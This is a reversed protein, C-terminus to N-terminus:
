RAATVLPPTGREVSWEDCIGPLVQIDCTARRNAALQVQYPGIAKDPFLFDTAIFQAGSNFAADRRATDNARAEVTDSDARTKVIFGAKVAAAIRAGDRRPDDIALIAAAPASEDTAVFMARGELNARAGQYRKVVDAKDDLLVMVKGRAAGLKPWAGAQVAARLTPYRGQVMDPTILEGDTFASRLLADLADFAAADFPPPTKAGPMPTRIDNVHLSILIPVHNKHARSWAAVQALCDALATCSSNYDVDLVHIVKFGPTQMATVYAPDLLDSAMSAGAPNAFAGGKPDYAVDFELARANANLQATLSPQGFDLAQADKEGGMKVLSLLAPTLKQKASEATGVTQIQNLRLNADFWARACKAGAQAPDPATRCDQASAAGGACLAAMVMSLFLLGRM